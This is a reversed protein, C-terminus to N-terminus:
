SKRGNIFAAIWVALYLAAKIADFLLAVGGYIALLIIAQNSM